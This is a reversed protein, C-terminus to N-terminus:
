NVTRASCRSKQKYSAPEVVSKSYVVDFLEDDYPIGDHELDAIEIEAEPYLRTTASSLDVGYGVLGCDIFGKLFEGRGCGVELIKSGKTLEYRKTLYQALKGPYSTFPRDQENYIVDVYDRNSAM